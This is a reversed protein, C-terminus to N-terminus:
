FRWMKCKSVKILNSSARLEKLPSLDVVGQMSEMENVFALIVGIIKKM